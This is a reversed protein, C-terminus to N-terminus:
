LSCLSCPISDVSGATMSKEGGSTSVGRFLDAGSAILLKQALQSCLSALHFDRNEFISSPVTGSTDVNPAKVLAFLSKESFCELVPFSTPVEGINDDPRAQQGAVIGVM